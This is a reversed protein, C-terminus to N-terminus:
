QDTLLTFRVTHTLPLTVSAFLSRSGTGAQTNPQPFVWGRGAENAGFILHGNGCMLHPVFARKGRSEIPGPVIADPLVTRLLCTLRSDPLTMASTQRPTATVPKYVRTPIHSMITNM